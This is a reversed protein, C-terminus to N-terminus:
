KSFTRRQVEWNTWPNLSQAEVASPMPEIGLRPVLIFFLCSPEGWWKSLWGPKSVVLFDKLFWINSFFFFFFWLISVRIQFPEPLWMMAGLSWWSSETHTHTHTHTHTNLWETMDSQKHGWISYGALSRHGHYRGPLFVPIPQWKKSWSIKRVWPDFGTDRASGTNAPLNKVM